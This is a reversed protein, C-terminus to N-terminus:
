GAPNVNITIAKSEFDKHDNHNIIIKITTNGETKGSIHFKYAQLEDDHSSVDAISIDEIEWDLSSESGSPTGIDGDESLFKISLLATEAGADVDISGTVIGGTYTVITDGGSIIFLGIAEFHTEQAEVPNDDGCGALFLVFFTWITFIILIQKTM